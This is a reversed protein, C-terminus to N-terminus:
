LFFFLRRSRPKFGRDKTGAYPATNPVSPREAWACDVSAEVEDRWTCAIIGVTIENVCRAYNTQNLWHPAVASRLVRSRSTAPEFCAGAMQNRGEALFNIPMVLHSLESAISM